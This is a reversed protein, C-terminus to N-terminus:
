LTFRHKELQIAFVKIRFIITLYFESESSLRDFSCGLRKTRYTKQSMFLM